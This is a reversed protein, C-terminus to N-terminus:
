LVLVRENKSVRASRDYQEGNKDTLWMRQCNSRIPSPAYMDTIVIHGDADAQENVYRTPADFNTGGYLVRERRRKEGRKWVFVKDEFVQHDFPVVTFTAFKAAGEMFEYAKKLLADSVSGSQDVSVYIHARRNVRRGFKKGPLRRSRRTISTKKNSVQSAKCFSNWVQQPDIEITRSNAKLIRARMAQSVSGWGAPAGDETGNDCENIARNVADQLQGAAFEMEEVEEDTMDTGHFEHTDHGANDGGPASGAGPQGDGGGPQGDGEGPEGEPPMKDMLYHAYWEASMGYRNLDKVPERGPLLALDLCEHRMDDLSNIALDMAINALRPNNGVIEKLSRVTTHGLAIHYFEHKLVWQRQRESLGDMFEPNYIMEFRRRDKNYRVGATPISETAVKDLRLSVRAFFPESRLLGTIERNLDFM